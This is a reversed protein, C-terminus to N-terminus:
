KTALMNMMRAISEFSNASLDSRRQLDTVKNLGRVKQGNTTPVNAVPAANTAEGGGLGVLTKLSQDISALLQVMMDFKSSNEDVAGATAVQTTPAAPTESIQSENGPLLTRAANDAINSTGGINNPDITRAAAISENRTMGNKALEADYLKRIKQVKARLVTLSDNEWDPMNMPDIFEAPVDQIYQKMDSISNLTPAGNVAFKSIGSGKGSRMRSGINSNFINGASRLKGLVGRGWKGQGSQAAKIKVKNHKVIAKNRSKLQKNYNEKWKKTYANDSPLIEQATGYPNGLGFRGRGWKGAASTSGADAILEDQSRNSEGVVVNGAGDGGTAIYGYLNNAGYDNALDGHVIMNRSSSNGWYGGQGDAIVVHDPDSPDFVGSTELVAIDGEVAGESPQKFRYPYTQNESNQKANPVYLDINPINAHSLYDNVWETCGTDGYGTTNVRSNAYESAARIQPNTSKSQPGTTGGSSGNSGSPSSPSGSGFINDLPNSGFIEKAMSGFSSSLKSHKFADALPGLAARMRGSLKEAAQKLIGLKGGTNASSTNGGRSTPSSSAALLDAGKSAFASTAYAIRKGIESGGSREFEEEWLQAAEEPSGCSNMKNVLGSDMAEKYVYAVQGEVSNPDMGQSQIWQQAAPWRNNPDWQVLGHYGDSNEANPDLTSEQMMNGMIGAAAVDNFGVKKLANFVATGDGRGWRGMGSNSSFSNVMSPNRKYYPIKSRISKIARRVASTGRGWKGRGVNMGNEINGNMYDHAIDANGYKGLQIESHGPGNMWGKTDETDMYEDYYKKTDEDYMGLSILAPRIANRDSYMGSWHKSCERIFVEPTIESNKLQYVEDQFWSDNNADDISKYYADYYKRTNEDGFGNKELAEWIQERTTNPNMDAQQIFDDVNMKGAKLKSMAKDISMNIQEQATMITTNSAGKYDNVSPAATGSKKPGNQKNGKSLDFGSALIGIIDSLEGLIGGSSKSNNSGTNTTAPATTGYRPSGIERKGFQSTDILKDDPAGAPINNIGNDIGNTYNVPDDGYYQNAKLANAFEASTKVGAVGDCQNMYWSYYEAWEEPSSFHMYYNNGDPQKDGNDTTQTMGGFNYNHSLDSAFGASEHYWQGYIFKPDIGCQKSAWNALAWMKAESVVPQGATDGEGRGWRGKGYTPIFYSRNGRGYKKPYRPKRGRGWKGRGAAIAMSSKNLVDSARYKQNPTFSEPDQIIINGKSDMGTATVYHNYDGYPTKGTRGGKSDKGMLVVPKGAKLNSEVSGVGISQTNFGNQQAYSNFFGPTTGGDREKYGHSLAYSAAQKTDMPIGLASAANALAAPGCGSDAMTQKQSDTSVNFGMQNIPDLQSHFQNFADSGNSGMGFLSNLMAGMGWKGTGSQNDNSSSDGFGLFEGINKGIQGFNRIFGMVTSATNKIKDIISGVKDKVGKFGSAATEMLGSAVGKARDLLSTGKEQVETAKDSLGNTVDQSTKAINEVAQKGTQRINNLDSETIGISPGIFQVILKAFEKAPVIWGVFPIEEMAQAVGGLIKIGTSATDAPLDFIEEAGNYGDYFSKVVFGGTIVSGVIAGVGLTAASLAAAGALKLSKKIIKKLIKPEQAKKILYECLKGLAESCSKGTIPALKEILGRFVGQMKKLIPAGKEAIQEGSETIFKAGETAGKGANNILNIGKNTVDVAKNGVSRAAKSATEALTKSEKAANPKGGTIIDKAKAFFGKSKAADEAAETAAKEAGKGTVKNWISKITGFGTMGTAVDLGTSLLSGGFGSEDEGAISTDEVPNGDEDYQPEGGEAGEGNNGTAWDYLKKGGYALGAAVALKKGGVLKLLKWGMSILRPIYKLVKLSKFLFKVPAFVKGLVTRLGGLLVPFMSIIKSIIGGKGKKDPLLGKALEQTGEASKGTNSEISQYMEKTKEQATEVIKNEKTKELVM